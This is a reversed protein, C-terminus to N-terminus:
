LTHAAGVSSLRSTLAVVNAFSNIKGCRVTVLWIVNVVHDCDVASVSLPDVFEQLLKSVDILLSSLKLVLVSGQLPVEAGDFGGFSVLWNLSIWDIFKESVVQVLATASQLNLSQGRTLIQETRPLDQGLNDVSLKNDSDTTTVHAGVFENLLVSPLFHHLHHLLLIIFRAVSEASSAVGTLALHVTLWGGSDSVHPLHHAVLQHIDLEIFM